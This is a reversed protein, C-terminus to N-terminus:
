IFLFQFNTNGETISCISKRKRSQFPTSNQFQFSFFRAMAFAAEVSPTLFGNSNVSLPSDPLSAVYRVFDPSANFFRCRLSLYEANVPHGIQLLLSLLHWSQDELLPTPDALQPPPEPPSM